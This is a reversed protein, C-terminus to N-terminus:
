HPKQRPICLLFKLRNTTEHKSFSPMWVDSGCWLGQNTLTWSTFSKISVWHDLMKYLAQFCNYFSEYSCRCSRCLVPGVSFVLRWWSINSAEESTWNWSWEASLRVKVRLLKEKRQLASNSPWSAAPGMRGLLLLVMPWLWTWPPARTRTMLTSCRPVTSNNGMWSSTWSTSFCLADLSIGLVSEASGCRTVKMHLSFLRM